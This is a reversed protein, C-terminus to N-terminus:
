PADNPWPADQKRVRQSHGSPQHCIGFPLHGIVLSRHGIVRILSPDFIRFASIGGGIFVSPCLHLIGDKGM